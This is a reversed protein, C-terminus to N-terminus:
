ELGNFFSSNLLVPIDTTVRHVLYLWHKHLKKMGEEMLRSMHPVNWESCMKHTVSFLLIMIGWLRYTVQVQASSCNVDFCWRQNCRLECGLPAMDYCMIVATFNECGFITFNASWKRCFFRFFNATVIIAVRSGFGYKLRLVLISNESEIVIWILWHM